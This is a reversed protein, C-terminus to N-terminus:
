VDSTKAKLVSGHVGPCICAGDSARLSRVSSLTHCAAPCLVLVQAMLQALCNLLLLLLM